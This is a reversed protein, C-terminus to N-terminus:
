DVPRRGLLPDSIHGADSVECVLQDHETWIRLLGSGGGHLVSNTVLETVAIELDILRNGSLGNTVDTLPPSNGRTRSPAATSRANSPM